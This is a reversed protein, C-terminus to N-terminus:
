LLEPIPESDLEVFIQGDDSFDLSFMNFVGNEESYTKLKQHKESLDCFCSPEFSSQEM